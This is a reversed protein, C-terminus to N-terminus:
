RHDASVHVLVSLGDASPVEAEGQLLETWLAARLRAVVVGLEYPTDAGLTVTLPGVDATASDVGHLALRVARSM